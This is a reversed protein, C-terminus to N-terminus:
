MTRALHEILREMWSTLADGVVKNLDVQSTLNRTMTVQEPQNLEQRLLPNLLSVGVVISTKGSPQHVVDLSISPKCGWARELYDLKHAVSLGQFYQVQNFTSV